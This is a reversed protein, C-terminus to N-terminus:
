YTINVGSYGRDIRYLSECIKDNLPKRATPQVLAISGTLMNKPYFYAYGFKNRFPKM